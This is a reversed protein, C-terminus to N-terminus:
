SVTGITIADDTECHITFKNVDTVRVPFDISKIWCEGTILPLGATTGGPALQFSRTTVDSQFGKVVFWAGATSSLDGICKVTFSAKELGPYWKHGTVGGVTVDGLEVEGPLGTVEEVWGQTTNLTGSGSADLAFYLKRGHTIAM